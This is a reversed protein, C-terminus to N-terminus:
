KRRRLVKKTRRRESVNTETGPAGTAPPTGTEPPAEPAETAGALAKRLAAAKVEPKVLEVKAIILNVLALFEQPTNINKSIFDTLQSTGMVKEIRAIDPAGAVAAEENLVEVIMQKLDKKTIKM